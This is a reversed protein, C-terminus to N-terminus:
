GVRVASIRGQVSIAGTAYNAQGVLYYTTTASVVARFNAVCLSMNNVGVVTTNFTTKQDGENGAFTNNTTSIGLVCATLVNTTSFSSSQVTIDWIGPTVSINALSTPTGNGPTASTFASVLREGLFGATPATNKSGQLTGAATQTTTNITTSTGSFVIGSYVISGAGTIANTNTSNIECFQVVAAAGISIASASGSQVGSYKVSQIGSGGLTLAITNTAATNFNSYGCGIAATSSSTIPFLLDSYSSNFIGASVTSATTANGTNTIRCYNIALAGASSHSFLTIGTTGINGECNNFTLAASSSSSSFTIGTNNSCNVYCNDVYLNSAASGTIAILVASNTVLRLGSLTSTGAGTMTLTGTISPVNLSGGGSLSTINVGPTITVNETVSDRLAITDGSVADAMASALTTHTGNAASTAVILRPNGYNNTSLAHTLAM